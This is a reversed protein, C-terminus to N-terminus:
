FPYILVGEIDKTTGSLEINNVWTLLSNKGNYFITPYVYRSYSPPLGSISMGTGSSPSDILGGSTSVRAAFIGSPPNNSFNDSAWVVFYNKGDFTVSAYLSNYTATNIAVGGTSSSGDLLTGDPKIRAGYIDNNLYSLSNRQDLWVVFYNTGDYIIQPEGQYGPATSIPIGAPDLVVGGPTVRTGYIDTDLAPGSGSRTDRWVVFYNTGDFAISPCIQEGPAVFISFENLVQGSPTVRAGYIDYNNNIFKSWVVIYNTGDFAVVPNYNTVVFPTGTSIAFGSPGDLVTGSPSIRQGVIQGNQDFVILYNTGDFAVSSRNSGQTSIDFTKLISGSGSILTGTMTSNSWDVVRRSVLLYNAGDYGLSPRGPSETDSNAPAVGSAIIFEPLIGRIQGDVTYGRLEETVTKSTSDSYTIISTRKVPGVSPAFWETVLGTITFKSNNSSLILTSTVSTEIRTVNSFTGVQVTATEFGAVTVVSNVDITESKGDGDIDEGYNLGKKDVQIFSSNAELPFKYEQYPILQPTLTNTFDNNGYYTIGYSDKLHYFEEPTGSNDPNSETFVTTTVGKVGKTGTIQLTDFFSVPAAGTKSVTSQFVWMNGQTFPFYNGIDVIGVSPVTSGGGGDGGCGILILSVCVVTTVLIIPRKM